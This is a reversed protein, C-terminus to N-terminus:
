LIAFRTAHKRVGKVIEVIRRTGQAAQWGRSMSTVSCKCAYLDLAVSLLTTAAYVDAVSRLLM